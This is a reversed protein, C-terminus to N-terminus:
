ESSSNFASNFFIVYFKPLNATPYIFAFFYFAGQTTRPALNGRFIAALSSRLDNVVQARLVGARADHGKQATIIEKM